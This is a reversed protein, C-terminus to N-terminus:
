ILWRNVDASGGALPAAVLALTRAAAVQDATMPLAALGVVDAGSAAGRPGAEAREDAARVRLPSGPEDISVTPPPESRGAAPYTARAQFPYDPIECFRGESLVCAITGLEAAQPNWLFSGLASTTPGPEYTADTYPVSVNMIPVPFLGEHDYFGHIATSTASARYLTRPEEAGAAPSSAGVLVLFVALAARRM